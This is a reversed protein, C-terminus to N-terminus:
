ILPATPRLWVSFAGAGATLNFSSNTKVLRFLVQVRQQDMLNFSNNTKVLRFLVQVQQQDMLSFSNNTKVLRFLVQLQQRQAILLCYGSMVCYLYLLTVLVSQDFELSLTRLHTTNRLLLLFIITCTDTPFSQDCPFCCCCFLTTLIHILGILIGQFPYWQQQISCQLFPM